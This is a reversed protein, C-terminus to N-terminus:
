VYRFWFDEIQEFNSKVEQAGSIIEGHGSLLLEADLRSMRMISEKIQAGDGGPLDTRGLGEKFVLDGTFLAKQLPWYLCVSGPSHGPTHFVQMELGDLSLEGEKLFFDPSLTDLDIGFSASMQKGITTAWHWEIEHLTFLAAKQKFLPVAELHDPHAHTCIVLDIDDTKLGLETLELEVHDFLARHGPDIM